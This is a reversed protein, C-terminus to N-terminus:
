AYQISPHFVIECHNRFYLAQIPSLEVVTASQHIETHFPNAKSPRYLILTKAKKCDVASISIIAGHLHNTAYEISEEMTRDATRDVSLGKDDKFAATSVSGDPEWYSPKKNPLYVARLLHENEQIEKNM